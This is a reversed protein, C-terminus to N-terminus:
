CLGLKGTQVEEHKEGENEEEVHSLSQNILTKVHDDDLSYFIQKGERRYKVIRMNKLIRLQHSIASKTVGLLEVLDCGCLEEQSLALLMKLRTPDSLAKFTESLLQITRESKMKKEVTAIKDFHIVDVNCMNKFKKM